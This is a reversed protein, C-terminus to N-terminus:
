LLISKHTQWFLNVSLPKTQFADFIDKMPKQLADVLANKVNDYSSEDTTLNDLKKFSSLYQEPLVGTMRSLLQGM